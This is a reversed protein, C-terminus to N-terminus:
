PTEKPGLAAALTTMIMHMNETWEESMPHIVEVRGGIEAALSRANEQDFEDQIFVVKIGEKRALDVLKRMDHASPEKGEEEMAYQELGYDLALYTLAPHFILFKRNTLAGFTYEMMRDISDLEAMWEDYHLLYNDAEEPFTKLLTALMIPAFQRVRKPSMWIHPDIGEHDSSVLQLGDSLSVVQLGPHNKRIRKDIWEELGLHGTKFYIKARSLHIMQRPTPEYSEHGAGPPIMVLVNLEGGTIRDVFYKQPLISVAVDPGQGNRGSFDCSAVAIGLLFFLATKSRM